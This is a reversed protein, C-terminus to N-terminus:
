SKPARGLEYAPDDLVIHHPSVPSTSSRTSPPSSGPDAPDGLTKERRDPPVGPIGYVLNVSWLILADIWLSLRLLAAPLWQTSAPPPLFKLRLRLAKGAAKKTKIRTTGYPTARPLM